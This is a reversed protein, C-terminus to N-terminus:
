LDTGDNSKSIFIFLLTRDFRGLSRSYFLWERCQFLFMVPIGLLSLKQLLAVLCGQYINCTRFLDYEGTSFIKCFDSFSANPFVICSSFHM